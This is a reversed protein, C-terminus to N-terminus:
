KQIVQPVIISNNDLYPTNKALEATSLTAGIKDERLITPLEYSSISVKHEELDLKAITEVFKLIGEMKEAIAKKESNNLRLNALSAIHDVQFSM